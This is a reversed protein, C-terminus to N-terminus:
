YLGAVEDSTLAKNYVRLDDMTGYFNEAFAARIGLRFSGTNSYDVGSTLNSEGKYEGDIYFFAKEQSRDIVYVLFYWVDNSLVPSVVISNSRSTGAVISTFRMQLTPTSDYQFGFTWEYSTDQRKTIIQYKTNAASWGKPKIWVAVSYSKTGVDLASINGMDVYDEPTDGEDFNLATGFVGTVGVNASVFNTHTGDNSNSSSDTATGVSTDDFKWWGILNSSAVEEFDGTKDLIYWQKGNSLVRLSGLNGSNLTTGFGINDILNGGGSIYVSNLTNIKKITHVRGLVNGAYPLALVVNSSSTDALVVSTTVNASSTVVNSSIGFTGQIQLTSNGSTTGIMMSGTVMANGSVHLNASPSDTSVGLGNSTLSMESISDNNVDFKITQTTSTVDAWAGVM